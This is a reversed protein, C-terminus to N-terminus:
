FFYQLSVFYSTKLQGYESDDAGFLLYTNASIELNTALSYTLTPGLLSSRDNLNVIGYVGANLLPTISKTASVASYLKALNFTEGALVDFLNYNEKNSEGQGNYYFEVLTYVNKPFNYDPHSTFMEPDIPLPYQTPLYTDGIHLRVLKDGQSAIQATYKEFVSGPIWAGM